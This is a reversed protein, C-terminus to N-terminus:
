WSFAGAIDTWGRRYRKWRDRGIAAADPMSARGEQEVSDGHWAMAGDSREGQQDQQGSAGETAAHRVTRRELGEFRGVRIRAAEVVRRALGALGRAARQQALTEHDPAGLGVHDLCALVELVVVAVLLDLEARHAHRLQAAVLLGHHEDVGHL